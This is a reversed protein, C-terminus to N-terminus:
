LTPTRGGDVPLAIGTIYSANPSCLFLTAFAIEEPSAFREMPIQKLWQKEEEEYSISKKQANMEILQTLRNTKTAGPLINNVTIGWPALETALTKAWSSVAWRTTNSVGLNPLPTKVSTSLINIIRGWKMKQMHPLVLETLNINVFLHQNLADQFSKVEAKHVLGSAPGPGNNILIDIPKLKIFNKVTEVMLERQNTDIVLYDHEQNQNPKTSDLQHQFEKLSHERRAYIVVHAGMGSLEEAIARGIGDSAGGVLARKHLLPLNNPNGQNMYPGKKTNLIKNFTLSM